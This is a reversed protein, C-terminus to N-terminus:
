HFIWLKQSFDYAEVCELISDNQMKMIAVENRINNVEFKDKPQIFKLAFLKDDSFRRVLFIRHSTGQELRNVICFHKSPNQNNFQV